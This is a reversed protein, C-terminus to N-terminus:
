RTEQFNEAAGVIRMGALGRSVLTKAATPTAGLETAIQDYSLDLFYRMVVATRQRPPLGALLTAIQHQDDIRAVENLQGGHSDSPEPLTEPSHTTVNRAFWSRRRKLHRSTIITRVYAVPYEMVAIDPWRRQAVLLAEALLDDGETRNGALLRAYGALREFSGGLFEEFTM